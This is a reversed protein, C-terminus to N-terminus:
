LQWRIGMCLQQNTENLPFLSVRSTGLYLNARQRTKNSAHYLPISVGILGVGAIVMARGTRKAGAVNGSESLGALPAMFWLYGGIGTLVGGSVASLTALTKQQKSKLLYYHHLSDNQPRATGQAHVHSQVILILFLSLPVSKVFKM